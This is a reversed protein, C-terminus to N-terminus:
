CKSAGHEDQLVCIRPTYRGNTLAMIRTYTGYTKPAQEILMLEKNVPNHVVSLGYSAWDAYALTWAGNPQSLMVFYVNSQNASLTMCYYRDSVIYDPIGDSNLDIRDAALAQGVTNKGFGHKRLCAEDTEGSFENDCPHHKSLKYAHEASCAYLNKALEKDKDTSQQLQQILTRAVKEPVYDPESPAIIRDEGIMKRATSKISEASAIQLDTEDIDASRKHCGQGALAVCLGLCLYATRNLM